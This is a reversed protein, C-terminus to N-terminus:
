QENSNKTRSTSTNQKQRLRHTQQKKNKKELLLRCVLHVPSQLESTHEEAQRFRGRIEAAPAYARLGARAPSRSDQRARRASPAQSARPLATPPSRRRGRPACTKVIVMSRRVVSIKIRPDPPAPRNAANCANLALGSRSMVTAALPSSPLHPQVRM